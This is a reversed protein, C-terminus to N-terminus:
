KLLPNLLCSFGPAFIPCQAECIFVSLWVLEWGLIKVKFSKCSFSFCRYEKLGEIKPGNKKKKRKKEKIISIHM